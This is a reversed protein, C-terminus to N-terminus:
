EGTDYNVHGEQIAQLKIKAHLHTGMIDNQAIDAIWLKLAYSNTENPKLIGTDFVKPDGNLLQPAQVTGNKSFSYKVSTWPMQHEACGHTAYKDDDNVLVLQYNANLTGTNKITFTYATTMLGDSDSVPIASALSIGSSTSDDLNLILTGTTLKNENVGNGAFSFAAYTVFAFMLIVCIIWFSWKLFKVSKKEM